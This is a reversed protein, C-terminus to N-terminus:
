RRGFGWSYSKNRESGGGLHVANFVMVAFRVDGTVEAIDIMLEADANLRGIYDGPLGCWYKMDHKACLHYIDHGAWDDPCWGSCGDSIFPKEPLPYNELTSIVYSIEHDRAIELVEQWPYEKGIEPLDRM